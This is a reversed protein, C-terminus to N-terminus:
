PEDTATPTPTETPTPTFTESPTPTPSPTDTPTPSGHDTPTASPASETLTASPALTPTSAPGGCNLLDIYAFTGSSPYYYIDNGHNYTRAWFRWYVTDPGPNAHTTILHTGSWAGGSYSMSLWQANNLNPNLSYEIKVSFIQETNDIAVVSFFNDCQTIEGSIPGVVNSFQVPGGCNLADKYSFPAGAPSYTIDGTNDLAWFRWYVTDTGPSATTDYVRPEAWTNGWVNTLKISISNSFNPSLSHEVKVYSVGQPDVADVYYSYVCNSLTGSSPGVPNTFTTKNTVAPQPASNIATAALTADGFAAATATLNVSQTLAIQTATGSLFVFSESTPTPQGILALAQKYVRGWDQYEARTIDHLLPPIQTDPSFWASQRSGLALGGGDNGVQCAGQLCTFIVLQAAPDFSAGLYAREEFGVGYPSDIEVSGTGPIIWIDGEILIVRAHDSSILDVIILTNGGLHIQTGDSLDLRILSDPGAYVQGGSDVELEEALVYWDEQDPNIGFGEGFVSGIRASLQQPTPLAQTPLNCAQLGLFAALLSVAVLVSRYLNPHANM